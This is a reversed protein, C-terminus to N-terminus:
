SHSSYPSRIVAVSAFVHVSSFASSRYRVHEVEGEDGGSSEGPDCEILHTNAAIRLTKVVENNVLLPHSFHVISTFRVAEAYIVPAAQAVALHEVASFRPQLEALRHAAAAVLAPPQAIYLLHSTVIVCRGRPIHGIALSFLHAIVFALRPRRARLASRRSGRCSTRGCTRRSSSESWKRAPVNQRCGSPQSLTFAISSLKSFDSVTAPIRSCFGIM